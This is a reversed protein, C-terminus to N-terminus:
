RRNDPKGKMRYDYAFVYSVRERDKPQGGSLMKIWPHAGLIPVIDVEEPLQM